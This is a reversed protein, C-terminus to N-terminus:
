RKGASMAKDWQASWLDSVKSMDKELLEPTRVATPKGKVEEAYVLFRPDQLETHVPPSKDAYYQSIQGEKSLYWNIYLKAANTNPSKNMLVLASFSLPVPTPCHWAVPAGKEDYEFTRYNSTPFSIDMEGVATLGVIADSGEKRFQPKVVTFLKEMYNASWEPGMAGWLMIMHNNPRNVMGIRGNYFAKASLMDEWSKPLDAKKVNNTNYTMCWYQVRPALWYGQPDKIDDPVYKTTPIDNTKQIAGADIYDSLNVGLGDVIDYLIRGEKYAIIPKVNRAFQDGSSYRIKVGPYRERFPATMKNFIEVSFSSSYDFGGEKNAAAVLADGSHVEEDIDAVVPDGTLKLDALMKQTSKPLDAAYGATAAFAACSLVAMQLGMRNWNM